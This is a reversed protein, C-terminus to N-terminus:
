RAPAAISTSYMDRHLKWKGETRRWIVIYKG